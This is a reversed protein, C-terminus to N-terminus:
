KKSKDKLAAVADVLQDAVKEPLTPLLAELKAAASAPLRPILRMSWYVQYYSYSPSKAERKLGAIIADVVGTHGVRIMAELVQGEDHPASGSLNEALFKNAADHGPRALDCVLEVAGADVAADLWRPDLEPPKDARGADFSRYTHTGRYFYHHSLAHRRSGLAAALAEAREVGARKKGRKGTLDALLLSFGDFFDAPTMTRRAAAYAPPLSGLALTEHAEVLAARTAAPGMAMVHALLDNFDQGAPTSKLKALTARSEFARLLFADAGADTRGSLCLALQQLRAVAPGQKKADKEALVRDLQSEAEALAFERVEALTSERVRDVILELDPGSIAKKLPAVIEDTAVEAGSLARLAAARVDKARSKTAELLYALDEGTTALCEVAAVRVEKSGEDLARRVVDRSGEPDIEHLLRLRHVHGGRGKVDLRARLEPAVARGYGPIVRKAILDAIDPYPDDLADLAAKVLRLDRFAGQKVADRVVEIRGGGTSTLAELLPKLLRASTQTAQTGLDTTELPQLEGEAGTEGQTYLIANVLTALDLLAAAATKEDSDVVARAAQAVKAFVPAKAGAQELPGALKKLRFDGPAVASGAIALRRVEDYVQVLVPISM